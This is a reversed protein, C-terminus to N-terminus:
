VDCHKFYPGLGMSHEHTFCMTWKMDEPFVYLDDEFAPTPEGFCRFVRGQEFMALYEPVAVREHEARAADGTLATEFEYSFAHWRYGLHIWEGTRRHVEGCFAQLWRQEITTAEDAPVPYGNVGHMDLWYHQGEWDYTM